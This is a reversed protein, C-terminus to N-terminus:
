PYQPPDIILSVANALKAVPGADPAGDIYGDVECRVRELAARLGAVESLLREGDRELAAIRSAPAPDSKTSM